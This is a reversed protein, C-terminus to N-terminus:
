DLALTPVPRFGVVVNTRGNPHFQLRKASYLHFYYSDYAGGRVVLLQEDYIETDGEDDSLKGDDSKAYPKKVNETWVWVNGNIDFLGLDNPKLLGVPHTKILSNAGYWAYKSLLESPLGFFWTTEAGARCAYEWEAETPLRYGTRKLHGPAMKMGEAYQGEQNPM